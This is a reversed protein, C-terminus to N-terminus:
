EEYPTTVITNGTVIYYLIKAMKTIYDGMRETNKIAIVLQIIAQSMQQNKTELNAIKDLLTVYISDVHADQEIITIGEDPDLKKFSHIFKNLMVIVIETMQVVDAKIDDNIEGIYPTLRRIINKSLDGMREMIVAIKMASTIQRLDIALPQRTAILTTAMQEIALDLQNVKLDLTEAQEIYNQKTNIAEIQLELLQEIMKGLKIISDTLQRLDLDYSEVIHPSM